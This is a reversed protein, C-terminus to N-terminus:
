AKATVHRRNCPRMLVHRQCTNNGCKKVVGSRGEGSQRKLGDRDQMVPDLRLNSNNSCFLSGILRIIPITDEALRVSARSWECPFMLLCACLPLGSSQSGCSRLDSCRYCTIPFHDSNDCTRIRVCSRSSLDQKGHPLVAPMPTAGM